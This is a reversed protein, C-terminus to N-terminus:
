ATRGLLRVVVPICVEIRVDIDRIVSARHAVGTTIVHGEITGSERDRGATTGGRGGKEEMITMGNLSEDKQGANLGRMLDRDIGGTDIDAEGAFYYCPHDPLSTM